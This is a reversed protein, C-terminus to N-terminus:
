SPAGQGPPLVAAAAAARTRRARVWAVLDRLAIAFLLVIIFEVTSRHTARVMESVQVIGLNYVVFSLLIAKTMGSVAPNRILRWAGFAALGMILSWLATTVVVSVVFVPNKRLVDLIVYGIGHHARLQSWYLRGDETQFRFLDSGLYKGVITVAPNFLIVVADTVKVSLFAVPHQLVYRLFDGVPMQEGPYAGRDFPFGATLSMRKVLGSLNRALSLETNAVHASAPQLADFVAWGIPIAFCILLTPLVYRHWARGSGWAFIVALLLPYLLLQTRVFMALALMVLGLYLIRARYPAEVALVLLYVAIVCLPSFLGETVLQHPQVISSPLLMYLMATGFAWGDSLGLLLCLRFLCFIAILGLLCQVGIVLFKGGLKYLGAHLLYDGPPGLNLLKHSVPMSRATETDLRDTLTSWAPRREQFDSPRDLLIHIKHLRKKARDGDLFNAPRAADYAILGVHLVTFLALCLLLLPTWLPPRVPTEATAAMM